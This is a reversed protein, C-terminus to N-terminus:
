AVARGDLLHVLGLGAPEFDDRSVLDNPLESFKFMTWRAYGAHAYRYAPQRYGCTAKSMRVVSAPDVITCHRGNPSFDDRGYTDRRLALRLPFLM